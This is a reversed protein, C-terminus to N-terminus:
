LSVAYSYCRKHLFVKERLVYITPFGSKIRRDHCQRTHSHAIVVRGVILRGLLTQHSANGEHDVMSSYLTTVNKKLCQNANKRKAISQATQKYMM